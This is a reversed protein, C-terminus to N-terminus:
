TSAKSNWRCPPWKFPTATPRDFNVRISDILLIEYDKERYKHKYYIILHHYRSYPLWLLMQLIGCLFFEAKACVKRYTSATENHKITTNCKSRFFVINRGMKACSTCFLQATSMPEQSVWTQTYSKPLLSGVITFQFHAVFPITMSM